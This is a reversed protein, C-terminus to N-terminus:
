LFDYIIDFKTEIEVVGGNYFKNGYREVVSSVSEIKLSKSNDIKSKVRLNNNLVLPYTKNKNFILGINFFSKKLELWKNIDTQYFVFLMHLADYVETKYYEDDQIIVPHIFGYYHNYSNFIESWTHSSKILITDNLNYM